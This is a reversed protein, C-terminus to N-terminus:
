HTKNWVTHVDTNDRQFYKKGASTYSYGCGLDCVNWASTTFNGCFRINEKSINGGNSIYRNKLVANQRILVPFWMYSKNFPHSSIAMPKLKSTEPYRLLDQFITCFALWLKLCVVLLKEAAFASRRRDKWGLGPSSVLSCFCKKCTSRFPVLPVSIGLLVWCPWKLCGPFNLNWYIESRSVIEACKWCLM